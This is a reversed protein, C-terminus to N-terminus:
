GAAGAVNRYEKPSQGVFKRFSHSFYNADAYGVKEAIDLARLDTTRLLEKAAEMRVQLLYTVFTLKTEKKFISSFYGASIHLHDCVKQISIDSEAYHEKTYHIAKNVLHTYTSQRASSIQEMMRMCIHLFWSKTESLNTFQYLQALPMSNMGFVTDLDVNADKAAKLITTMMELLYIQYDKFSINRDAIGAFLAEVIVTIEEATGIKIGLILSHAKNEDFRLQDNFRKEVDDICIVRNNGLIPRYDLAQRADEYSHSLRVAEHEVTGMGITVTTKLHKEISQRIENLVQITTYMIAERDGEDSVTLLIVDEHYVFAVGLGHKDVIEETINFVAFGQLEKNSANMLSSQTTQADMRIVSALYGKGLLQLGYYYSKDQIQQPTLRGNILSTLFNERLIPLSKRYQEKLTQIDEKQAIEQDIKDKVKVLVEILEQASFPKLVYEDIHLHVAKQAYEFEDFGTLIIIKTHPYKERIIESLELGDMFPMKIDTVVVDPLSREIIELADIGNDAKEVAQFGYLSWDVEDRVDEEDDVLLLKYM